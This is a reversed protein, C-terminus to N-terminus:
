QNNKKKKSGNKIVKLHKFQVTTFKDKGLRVMVGNSFMNTIKGVKGVKNPPGVTIKVKDGKKM